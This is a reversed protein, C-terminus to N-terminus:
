FNLALLEEKMKQSLVQSNRCNRREKRRIITLLCTFMPKKEEPFFTGRQGSISTQDPFTAFNFTKEGMRKKVVKINIQTNKKSLGNRPCLLSIRKVTFIIHTNRALNLAHTADYFSDEPTNM